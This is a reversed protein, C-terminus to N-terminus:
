GLATVVAQADTTSLGAYRVLELVLQARADDPYPDSAPDGLDELAGYGAALLTARSPFNTPFPTGALLNRLGLCAGPSADYGQARAEVAMVTYVRRPHLATSM